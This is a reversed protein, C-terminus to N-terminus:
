SALREKGAEAKPGDAPDAVVGAALLRDIEAPTYGLEALLAASQAGVQPLAMRPGLRQGDLTLPLLPVRAEGGTETAITALGGSQNLHPDDFLEEPRNIPAYPLGNREFLEAIEAKSYAALRRRIEPLMWDRALCRKTNGDLRPDALLDDFGFATCFTRWQVDSVAGLFIQEGDKVEFTDYISFAAIREPFPPPAEGTVAFQQMHQASLLVCTEYLGSQIDQGRGTAERTRLAAMIGIVGFMGGMIDNVSSGARLPRGTPGTMYALGAMMQVVEDLATRKEYPGPLFGKLSLNIIRPNRAQLSAYDLGYRAMLGPRFNELVVDATDVLRHVAALGDPSNLDVALSKKNRNFTRFFGAAAGPLARTKDGTVPEVKIVDAGLDGLIMGCTPGMVMHSFEVVRIGALPLNPTTADSM